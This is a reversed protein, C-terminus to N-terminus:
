SGDANMIYIQWQGTRNSMFAIKTGDPSWVGRDSLSSMTGTTLQTLGTGDGNMTYLQPSGGADSTFVIKGNHMLQRGTAVGRAEITIPIAVAILATLALALCRLLVIRAGVVRGAGTAM